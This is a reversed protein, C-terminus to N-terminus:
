TFCANKDGPREKCWEFSVFQDEEDFLSAGCMLIPRVYVIRCGVESWPGQTMSCSGSYVVEIVASPLLCRTTREHEFLSMYM